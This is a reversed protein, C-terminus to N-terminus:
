EDNAPKLRVEVFVKRKTKKDIFYANNYPPHTLARLVNITDGVSSASDMDLRCLNQFDNKTNAPGDTSVSKKEYNGDIVGLLNEKLLEVEAVLIKNYVDASNDWAEVNVETQAIVPGHDPKEDMEHLTAGVPQKNIISFVQPYWGRNYPAYGPHLNICRVANVLEAPFLQRCHISLVLECKAIIRDKYERPVDILKTKSDVLDQVTTCYSFEHKSFSAAEAISRFEDLMKRNDGIVLINM